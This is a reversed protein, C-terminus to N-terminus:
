VFHELHDDGIRGHDRRVLGANWAVALRERIAGLDRLELPFRLLARLGGEDAIYWVDKGLGEDDFLVALSKRFAASPSVRHEVVFGCRVLKRGIGATGWVTSGRGM